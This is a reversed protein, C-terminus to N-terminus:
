PSTGWDCPLSLVGVKCRIFWDRYDRTAIYSCPRAASYFMMTWLVIHQLNQLSTLSKSSSYIIDISVNDMNRVNDPKLATETLLMLEKEGFYYKTRSTLPLRATLAVYRAHQYYM